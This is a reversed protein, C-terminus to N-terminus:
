KIAEPPTAVDEKNDGGGVKAEHRIGADVIIRAQRYNSVFAPQTDSFSYILKDMRALAHRAAKEAGPITKTATAHEGIRTRPDALADGAKTVAAQAATVMDGTVGYEAVDDGQASVANIMAQLVGHQVNDPLNLLYSRSHSVQVYLDAKHAELAYAATNRSIALVKTIADDVIAEKDTTVGDSTTAQDKLAGDRMAVAAALEDHARTFPALSQWVPKNGNLVQLVAKDSSLRNQQKQTM